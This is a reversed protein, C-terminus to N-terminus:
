LSDEIRCMATKSKVKGPTLWTLPKQQGYGPCPIGVRVYKNCAPRQLDCVLRRTLGEWCRRGQDHNATVRVTPTVGINSSM